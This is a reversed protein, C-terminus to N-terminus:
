QFPKRDSLRKGSELLNYRLFEFGINALLNMSEWAPGLVKRLAAAATM